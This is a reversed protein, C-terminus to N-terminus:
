DKRPVLMISNVMGFFKSSVMVMHIANFRKPRIHFPLHSLMISHKFRFEIEIEFFGFEAEIM